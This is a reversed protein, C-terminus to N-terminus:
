ILKMKKLLNELPIPYFDNNDVGVDWQNKLPELKGHCHGHLNISKDGFHSRPWTRFPYHCAVIYIKDIWKEWIDPLNKNWYDHSGKLFIHEGNLRRIYNEAQRKSKLTFDGVHIIIDDDKVISNHLYILKNDMEKVDKFPRNCYKIINTHGYHEDSTFFYRM